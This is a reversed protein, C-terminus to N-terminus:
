QRTRRTRPHPQSAKRDALWAAKYPAGCEAKLRARERPPLAEWNLAWRALDHAEDGHDSLLIIYEGWKPLDNRGIRYALEYRQRCITAVNEVIRHPDRAGRRVEDLFLNVIHSRRSAPLWELFHRLPDAALAPASTANAQPNAFSSARNRTM